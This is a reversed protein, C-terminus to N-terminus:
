LADTREDVEKQLKESSKYLAKLDKYITQLSERQTPLKISPITQSLLDLNKVLTTKLRLTLFLMTDAETDELARSTKKLKELERLKNEHQHSTFIALPTIMVLAFLETLHQFSTLDASPHLAFFIVLIGTLILTVETEFLIAVAFLLFYIIFFFPSGLGGSETVLLLLTITLLSLDLTIVRHRTLHHHRLAWAAFFYLLILVAVLQFTYASLIHSTTWFYSLITAFILVIAHLAFRASM